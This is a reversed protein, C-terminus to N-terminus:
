QHPLALSGGELSWVQQRCACLANLRDKCPSSGGLCQLLARMSFHQSAKKAKSNSLCCTRYFCCTAVSLTLLRGAIAATAEALAWVAAEETSSTGPSTPLRWVRPKPTSVGTGGANLPGQVIPVTARPNGPWQVTTLPAGGSGRGKRSHPMKSRSVPKLQAGLASLKVQELVSSTASAMQFSLLCGPHSSVPAWLPSTEKGFAHPPDLQM